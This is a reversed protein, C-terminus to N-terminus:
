LPSKLPIDKIQNGDTRYSKRVNRRNINGPNSEYTLQNIPTISNDNLEFVTWLTGEKNVPINYTSFITNNRYIQITASSNSLAFSSTEESNSYNHVSFRYTGSVQKYITVTEPGYSTTDDLDLKVQNPWPSGECKDHDPCKEAYKWFIHFSTGDDLPGTLHLDLDIPEKGWTLIVRTEGSNILPTITGNQDEESEGGISLVIIYGKSYNANGTLEATYNGAPLLTYYFGDDDTTETKVIDGTSANMGLRFNMIVNKVGLGTISDRIQGSANGNGSNLTPIAKMTADYVTIGEDISQISFVSIYDDLSVVIKYTGPTLILEYSGDDNSMTSAVYTEYESGEFVSVKANDVPDNSIADVIKGILFGTTPEPNPITATDSSAKDTAKKANLIGFRKGMHTFHRDSTEVIIQKIQKSTLNSNISSVLAAVGTVHPAAMSTGSLTGYDNYNNVGESDYYKSSYIDKGPAYIDVKPGYNSFNSKYYHPSTFLAPFPPPNLDRPTCTISGVILISKRLESDSISNFVGGWTSLIAENGAAQIFLPDYKDQIKKMFSTWYMRKNLIYTQMDDQNSVEPSRCLAKKPYSGLSLNIIKVGKSLLWMIGYKIDFSQGDTRWAYLLPKPVIGSIGVNNNHGSAIIGSVHTGHNNCSERQDERTKAPYSGNCKEPKYTFDELKVYSRGNSSEVDQFELDEHFRLFGFDIIGIKIEEYNTDWASLAYITELGWNRGRPDSESWNTWDWDIGDFWKPDDPEMNNEIITNLIAYEVEPKGNLTSVISNLDELSPNENIEIQYENLESIWGIINGNVETIIDDVIDKSIEDQFSVIIQRNVYKQGTNSDVKISLPELSVIKGIAENESQPNTNYSDGDDGCGYLSYLVIIVTAGVILKILKQINRRYM